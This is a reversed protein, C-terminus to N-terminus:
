KPLKSLADNLLSCFEKPDNWGNIPAILAGDAGFVGMAPIGEAKLLEMAKDYSGGADQEQIIKVPVFKGSLLAAVEKDPYTYYDMRYCWVCWFAMVDVFLPKGQEKALALGQEFTVYNWAIPQESLPRSTDFGRAKVFEAKEADFLKFWTKEVRKRHSELDAPDAAAAPQATVVLATGEGFKARYIAGDLFIGESLASVAFSSAPRQPGAGAERLIWGDEESTFAGDGNGDFGYAALEKEGVKFKAELYWLAIAQAMLPQGPRELYVFVFPFTREGSKVALGELLNGQKAGGQAQVNVTFREGLGFKDDGDVDFLLEDRAM